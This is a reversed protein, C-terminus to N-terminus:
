ARLRAAAVFLLQRWHEKVGDLSLLVSISSPLLLLSPPLLYLLFCRGPGWVLVGVRTEGSLAVM